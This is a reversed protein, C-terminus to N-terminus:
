KEVQGSLAKDDLCLQLLQSSRQCRTGLQGQAPLLASSQLLGLSIPILHSQDTLLVRPAGLAGQVAGWAADEDARRMRVRLWLAASGRLLPQAPVGREANSTVFCFVGAALSFRMFSSDPLGQCLWLFSVTVGFRQTMLLTKNKAASVSSWVHCATQESRM